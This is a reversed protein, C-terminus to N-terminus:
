KKNKIRVARQLINKAQVLSGKEGGDLMRAIEKVINADDIYQVSTVTRNGISEKKIQFHTDALAAIQPWHTICIVQHQKSINLMKEGVAQVTKGGIGADIEDFVLTPIWQQKALVSKLALMVRSMEGGSVIKHLAKPPEGQNASFFFEVFDCGTKDLKKSTFNVEFVADQLALQELHKKVEAAIKKSKESRIKSIKQALDVTERNLKEKALNLNNIKEERTELEEKELEVTAAYNLIEAVSNGYKVKLRDIEEVRKEVDAKEHADLDINEGFSRLQRAVDQMIEAASVMQEQIEGLTDDLGSLETLFAVVNQTRDNICPYNSSVALENYADFSLKIIKEANNLFSLRRKLEEEEGNKLCAENIERLQFDYLDLKHLREKEDLSLDIIQKKIKQLKEYSAGLRKKLVFLEEGCLVDLVEIHKNPDLLSQHEHQGHLDIINQGIKKLVALPVIIGNLRCINKGQRNIERSIIIESDVMELKKLEDWAPSNAKVSFVGQIFSEKCGMRINDTYARDGLLLKIAGLLISKGAGTEGTLVNLGASFELSVDEILAFNKVELRILM